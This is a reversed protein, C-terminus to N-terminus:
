RACLRGFIQKQNIYSQVSSVAGPTTAIEKDIITRLQDFYENAVRCYTEVTIKGACQQIWARYLGAEALSIPQAAHQSVLWVMKDYQHQALELDRSDCAVGDSAPAATALSALFLCLSVAPVLLSRSIM